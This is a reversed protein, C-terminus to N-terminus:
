SETLHGTVGASDLVRKAHVSPDVVYARRGLREAQQVVALLQGLGRSDMFSIGSLDIAYAVHDGDLAGVVTERLEDGTADDLEGDVKILLRDGDPRM